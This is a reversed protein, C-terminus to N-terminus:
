HSHGNLQRPLSTQVIGSGRPPVCSTLYKPDTGHWPCTEQQSWLECYLRDGARTECIPQETLTSAAALVFRSSSSILSSCLDRAGVARQQRSTHQCFPALYAGICCGQSLALPCCGGGLAEASTMGQNGQGHDSPM